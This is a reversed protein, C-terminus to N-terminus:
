RDRDERVLDTSDGFVRGSAELHQRIANVAAWPDAAPGSTRPQLVVVADFETGPQGVPLRLVLTGDPGAVGSTPITQM